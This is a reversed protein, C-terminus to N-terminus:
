AAKKRKIRYAALGAAGLAVLLLSSSEPTGPTTIPTNPQTEYAFSNLQVEMLNKLTSVSAWGYHTAGDLQFTLGIFGTNNPRWYGRYQTSASCKQCDGGLVGGGFKGSPGVVASRGLRAPYGARGVAIGAGPVLKQVFATNASKDSYTAVGVSRRM